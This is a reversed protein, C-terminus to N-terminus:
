LANREGMSHVREEQRDKWCYEARYIEFAVVVQNELNIELGRTEGGVM